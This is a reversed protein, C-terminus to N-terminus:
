KEVYDKFRNLQDTLVGDVPTAWTTMGAAQYGVVSYTFTLKTGEGDKAIAFIMSGAAAVNQLPGLGGAFVIRTGPMLTIVEMHKVGGGNPLKECWCGGPKEEISLNHADGSFTHASDWWDGPHLLKKYVDAPAAKLNLTIKLTFGNASSDAVTAAAWVPALLLFLVLKRM